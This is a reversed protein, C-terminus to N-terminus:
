RGATRLGLADLLQTVATRAAREVSEATFGGVHPTALVRPHALLPSPPPPEEDFVDTAFARLRDDDLAALVADADVLAARATNVLVAGPRLLALERSGLLPRGGAPPPCHLSVVDATALLEDLGVFTTPPDAPPVPDSAVTRMGLGRALALVRRGIEGAGVVGLVRGAVESGLQREWRGERLAAASASIARVASLVLGIALEAVGNANAGAARLVDIGLERAADLDINDVGAGNRSIVRLGPAGAALVRRPIPEVGALWGVCGPVLTLLEDEAPRRGAPARVIELGAEALPALEPADPGTLSRPTV